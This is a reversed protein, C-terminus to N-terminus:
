ESTVTLVEVFYAHIIRVDRGESLFKFCRSVSSVTQLSTQRGSEEMVSCHRSIFSLGTNEIRRNM